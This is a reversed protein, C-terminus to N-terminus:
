SRHILRLFVQVNLYITVIWYAFLLIYVKKVLKKPRKFITGAVEAVGLNILGSIALVALTVALITNVIVIILGVKTYALKNIIENIKDEM